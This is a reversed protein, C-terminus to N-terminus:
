LIELPPAELPSAALQQSILPMNDILRVGFIRAAILVRFMDENHPNPFGSHQESDSMPPQADSLTLRSETPLPQLEPGVISLYDLALEPENGLVQHGAQLLTAIQREGAQYAAQVAWLAKSLVTARAQQEPTLYINRSSMALGAAAGENVRVTPVGVVATPHNLDQAMQRIVTLQQWDKEGFYAREPRVLNLLKLVVTAVGDFHGPRSAGELAQSVGGVKVLSAFGAPYMTSPTPHFILDAGAEQALLGDRDLDRPYRSLDESPGFQLPNIFISVVVLDNEARAERILTAHGQHLYGMTPILGVRGKGDLATRLEAPTEAIPLVAPLVGKMGNAQQLL